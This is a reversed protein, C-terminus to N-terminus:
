LGSLVCSSYIVDSHLFYTFCIKWQVVYKRHLKESESLTEPSGAEHKLRSSAPFYEAM